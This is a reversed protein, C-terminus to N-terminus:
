ILITFSIVETPEKITIQGEEYYVSEYFRSIQKAIKSERLFLGIGYKTTFVTQCITNRCIYLNDTMHHEKVHEDFDALAM